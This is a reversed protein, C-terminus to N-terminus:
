FAYGERARDRKRMPHVMTVAPLGPFRRRARYGVPYYYYDCAPQGSPLMVKRPRVEFFGTENVVAGMDLIVLSGTDFPFV